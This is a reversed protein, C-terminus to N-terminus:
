RKVLVQFVRDYPLQTWRDSMPERRWASGGPYEDANSHEWRCGCNPDPAEVVISLKDGSQVDLPTRLRYMQLFSGRLIAGDRPDSREASRLAPSLARDDPAGDPGQKFVSVSLPGQDTEPQMWAAGIWVEFLKGSTAVVLSQALSANASASASSLLAEEGDAKIMQQDIALCQAHSSCTQTNDCVRPDDVGAIGACTGFSGKIDCAYCPGCAEICCVGDECFGSACQGENSCSDGLAGKCEGASSCTLACSDDDKGNLVKQCHGDSGCRECTGCKSQACCVADTCFQGGCEAASVCAAGLTRAEPGGSDGGAATQGARSSTAPDSMMQGSVGANANNVRPNTMGADAAAVPVAAATMNPHGADM